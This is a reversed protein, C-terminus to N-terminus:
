INSAFPLYIIQLTFNTRTSGKWMYITSALVCRSMETIAVQFGRLREAALRYQM